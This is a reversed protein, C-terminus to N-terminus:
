RVQNMLQVSVVDDYYAWADPPTFLGKSDAAKIESALIQAYQAPRSGEPIYNHRLVPFNIVELERMGFYTTNPRSLWYNAANDNSIANALSGEELWFHHV